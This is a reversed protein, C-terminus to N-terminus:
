PLMFCLDVNKLGNGIYFGGYFPTQIKHYFVYGPWLLSRGVVTNIIEEYQVSWCGYPIDDDVPDAFDLSKDIYQQAVINEWTKHIPTRLHVFNYLKSAQYKDMGFFTQNKVIVQEDDKKVVFAGRPVVSGDQDIMKVAWTLRKEETITFLEEKPKTKKEDDAKEDNKDENDEDDDKPEKPEVPVEQKDTVEESSEEKPKPFLYTHTPIGMFLTRISEICSVEYETLDFTM